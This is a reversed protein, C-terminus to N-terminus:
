IRSKVSHGYRLCVFLATFSKEIMASNTKKGNEDAVFKEVTWGVNVSVEEKGSKV